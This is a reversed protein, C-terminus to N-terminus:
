RLHGARNYSFHETVQWGNREQNYRVNTTKNTLAPSIRNRRQELFCKIYDFKKWKQSKKYPLM